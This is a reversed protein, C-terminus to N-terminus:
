TRVAAIAREIEAAVQPWTGPPAAGVMVSTTRAGVVLCAIEVYSAVATDYQDQVCSGHGTRFALKSNAALKRVSRDGEDRDHALRFSPWTGLQENGQRPTLNLYGVIRGSPSTRIATATGSDGRTLRWGPPYTMSAGSPITITKWGTPPPSKLWGFTTPSVPQAGGSAAAHVGTSNGGSGGPKAGSGCGASALM